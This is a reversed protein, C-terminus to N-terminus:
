RRVKMGGSLCLPASRPCRRLALACEHQIFLVTVVGVEGALTRARSSHMVVLLHALHPCSLQAAFSHCPWCAWAVIMGVCQVAPGVPCSRPSQVVRHTTLGGLLAVHM